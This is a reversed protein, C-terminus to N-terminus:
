AGIKAVKRGMVWTTIPLKPDNETALRFIPNAENDPIPRGRFGLDIYAWAEKNGWGGSLEIECGAARMITELGEPSFRWLDKPGYHVPNIFCTTHVILGGVRVVRVTERVAAFPDGEVHELVQDSACVDFTGDEFGLSLINHEPYKAETISAKRFGLQQLLSQSGSISLCRVGDGDLEALKGRLTRYMSLRTIHHTKPSPDATLCYEIFQRVRAASLGNTIM